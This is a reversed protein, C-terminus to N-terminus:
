ENSLVLSLKTDVFCCCLIEVLEKKSLKKMDNEHDAEFTESLLSM